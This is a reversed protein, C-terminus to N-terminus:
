NLGADSLKIIEGKRIDVLAVKGLLENSRRVPIFQTPFITGSLNEVSFKHGTKIDTAAVLSKGLKKFVPEQGLLDSNKRKLM